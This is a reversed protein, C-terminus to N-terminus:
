VNAARTAKTDADEQTREAAKDADEMSRSINAGAQEVYASASDLMTGNEMRNERKADEAGREAETAVDDAARRAETGADVVAHSLAKDGTIGEKLESAAASAGM